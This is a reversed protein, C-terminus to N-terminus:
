FVDMLYLIDLRAGSIIDAAPTHGSTNMQQVPLYVPLSPGPCMRLRVSWQFDVFMAVLAEVTDFHMRHWEVVIARGVEQHTSCCWRWVIALGECASVWQM